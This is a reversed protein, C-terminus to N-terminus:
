EEDGKAAMFDGVRQDVHQLRRNTRESGKELDWIKREQEQMERNISDVRHRMWTVRQDAASVAQQMDGEVTTVTGNMFEIDKFARTISYRLMTVSHQLEPIAQANQLMDEIRGLNRRLYDLEGGNDRDPLLSGPSNLRRMIETVTARLETILSQVVNLEQDNKGLRQEISRSEGEITKALKEITDVRTQLDTFNSKLFIEMDQQFAVIQAKLEDWENRIELINENEVKAEEITIGKSSRRINWSTADADDLLVEWASGNENLVLKLDDSKHLQQTCRFDNGYYAQLRLSANVRLIEGDPIKNFIVVPYLKPQYSGQKLLTVCISFAQPTKSENSAIINNPEDGNWRTIGCWFPQSGTTKLSTFYGREILRSDLPQICSDSNKTVTCVALGLQCQYMQVTDYRCDFVNWAIPHVTHFLSDSLDVPTLTFIIQPPPVDKVSESAFSFTFRRREM